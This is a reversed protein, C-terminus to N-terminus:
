RTRDVSGGRSSIMFAYQTTTPLKKRIKRTEPRYIIMETEGDNRESKLIKKIVRQETKGSVKASGRGLQPTIRILIPLRLKSHEDEPILNSLFDLEKRKFRQTTGDKNQVEPKEMKLLEELTKRDKPLHQNLQGLEKKLFDDEKM